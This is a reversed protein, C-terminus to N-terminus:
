PLPILWPSRSAAKAKAEEQIIRDIEGYQDLDAFAKAIEEVTCLDAIGLIDRIEEPTANRPDKNKNTILFHCASAVLGRLKQFRETEAIKVADEQSSRLGQLFTEM